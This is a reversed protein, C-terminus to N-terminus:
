AVTEAEGGVAERAPDLTAPPAGGAALRDALAGLATEDIRVHRARRAVEACRARIEDFLSVETM